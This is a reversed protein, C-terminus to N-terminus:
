NNSVDSTMVFNVPPPPPPPPIPFEYQKLIRESEIKPNSNIYFFIGIGFILILIIIVIMFFFIGSGIVLFIPEIGLNELFTGVIQEKLLNNPEELITGELINDNSESDFSELNCFLSGLFPISEAIECFKEKNM